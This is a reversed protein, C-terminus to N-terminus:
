AAVAEDAQVETVLRTVDAIADGPRLQILRVGQTHRGMRSIQGVHLRIMQGNQTVIMLDDHDQVAKIAILCGTRPTRKM